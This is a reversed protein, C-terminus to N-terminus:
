TESTKEPLQYLYANGQKKFTLEGSIRMHMLECGSIKLQKKIEASSLWTEDKNSKHETM